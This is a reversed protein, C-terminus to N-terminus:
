VSMDRKVMVAEADMKRLSLRFGQIRVEIPDGMPAFRVLEITTGRTMGMELLRQRVNGHTAKIGCITGRDGPTLSDLTVENM